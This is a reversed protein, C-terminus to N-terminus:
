LLPTDSFRNQWLLNRSHGHGLNMFFVAFGGAFIRHAFLVKAWVFFTPNTFVCGFFKAALSYKYGVPRCVFHLKIVFGLVAFWLQGITHVQKEPAYFNGGARHAFVVM